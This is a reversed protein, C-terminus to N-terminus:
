KKLKYGAVGAMVGAAQIEGELEMKNIAKSLDRRKIGTHKAINAITDVGKGGVSSLHEIIKERMEKYNMEDSM